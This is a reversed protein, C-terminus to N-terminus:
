SEKKLGNLLQKIYIESKLQCLADIHYCLIDHLFTDLHEATHKSCAAQATQEIPIEAFWRLLELAHRNMPYLPGDPAPCASCTYGGEKISLTNVADLETTGCEMCKFDPAFGSLALFKLKFARIIQKHGTQAQDVAQLTHLLLDYLEPNPHGTDEARTVIECPISALSLKGLENLLSPFRSLLSVQSLYQLGRTQKHYFVMSVHNFTELAGSHKSRIGRSGKAMLSLKGFERTYMSLIKSTEGQKRSHLILAETKCLAM